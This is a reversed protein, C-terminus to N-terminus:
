RMSEFVLCLHNKHFFNHYLRICHFKDDPDSNNLKKLIDLEQLGTKHRISLSFALLSVTIIITIHVSMMENNRIIKIAVEQNSKMNDRGRVVNSFVGQGTYGYIM